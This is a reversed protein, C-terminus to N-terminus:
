AVRRMRFPVLFQVWARKFRDLDVTEHMLHTEKGLMTGAALTRAYFPTDELSRIVKPDCDADSPVTRGVGWRTPELAHVDVDPLPEHHGDPFFTRRVSARSGDRRVVDYVVHTSDPGSSRSWDWKQFGRELPEDGANTDVYARGSWRESRPRELEVSARANLALPTWRHLGAGDLPFTKHNWVGPHVRVVGRLERGFPATRENLHVALTGDDQRVVRSAGVALSAASREVSTSGRETLAWLGGNKGYCAVNVTCFELPNTPGKGRRKAYYPSFVNGIMAIIVIASQGDESVVDVYWWRYGDYPVSTDFRLEKPHGAVRTNRLDGGDARRSGPPRRGGRLLTGSDEVEVGSARAPVDNWPISGRLSQRGDGSVESRVAPTHHHDIFEAAPSELRLAEADRVHSDSV